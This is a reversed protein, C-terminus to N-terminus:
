TEFLNGPDKCAEEVEHLAWFNRRLLHELTSVRSSNINVGTPCVVPLQLLPNGHAVFLATGEVPVNLLGNAGYASSM